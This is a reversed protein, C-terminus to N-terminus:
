YKKKKSPFEYYTRGCFTMTSLTSLQVNNGNYILTTLNKPFTDTTIQYNKDTVLELYTLGQPLIGPKLRYYSNFILYKLNPPLVNAEIDQKFYIGFELKTLNIPFCGESFLPTCNFSGFEDGFKLHTLSLPFVGKDLTLPNFDAGFELYTLSIPFMNPELKWPNFSKKFTLHTITDPLLGKILPQNFSAGLKLRLLNAPLSGPCLQPIVTADSYWDDDFELDTINLPLVNPKITQTFYRGFKLKTLSDPLSGKSLSLDYDKGLDLETLGIPLVGPLLSQTHNRYYKSGFGNVFTLSKLSNPLVGEILIQDCNFFHLDTLSNPFMDKRVPQRIDAVVELRKIHLPILNPCKYFYPFSTSDILINRIFRHRKVHLTHLSSLPFVVFSLITDYLHMTMQKNFCKTLNMLDQCWHFFPFDNTILYEVLHRSLCIRMLESFTKVTMNGEILILTM